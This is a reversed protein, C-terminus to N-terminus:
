RSASIRVDFSHAIGRQYLWVYIVPFQRARIQQATLTSLAAPYVLYGNALYGGFDSRGTIERINQIVENPVLGPGIASSNALTQCASEIQHRANRRGEESIPWRGTSLGEDLLQEARDHLWDVSALDDIFNSPDTTVGQRVENRSAGVVNVYYNCRRADLRGEETSSLPDPTTGQLNAFKATRTQGQSFDVAAMVACLATAKYDNFASYILSVRNRDGDAITAGIGSATARLIGPDSTDLILKIKSDSTIAEALAQADATDALATDASLWSWRSDHEQAAAIAQAATQPTAAESVTAGGGVSLGLMDAIDGQISGIEDPTGSSSGATVVYRSGDYTVLLRAAGDVSTLSRLAAQVDTAISDYTNSANALEEILVALPDGSVDVGGYRLGPTAPASPQVGGFGLAEAISGTFVPLPAPLQDSPTSTIYGGTIEFRNNTSNYTVTVEEHGTFGFSASATTDRIAVQVAAAITLYTSSANNLATILTTLPSGAPLDTGDAALTGTSAFQTRIDALQRPTTGNIVARSVASDSRIDALSDPSGGRATAAANDRNWRIVLLGDSPGQAFHARIAGRISPSSAPFVSDGDEISTVLRVSGPGAPDLTEDKTILAAGGFRRATTRTTTFETQVRISDRISAM